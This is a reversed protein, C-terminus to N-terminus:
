KVVTIQRGNNCAYVKGNETYTMVLHYVGPALDGLAVEQEFGSTLAWDGVGFWPLIDPRDKRTGVITEWASAGDDSIIRVYRNVPISHTPRSFMWGVVSFKSGAPVEIKPETTSVGAITELNCYPGKVPDAAINEVPLSPDVSALVGTAPMATEPQLEVVVDAVAEAAAPPPATAEGTAPAESKGCGSLATLGVVVTAALVNRKITNLSASAM